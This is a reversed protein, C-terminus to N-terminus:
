VIKVNQTRATTVARKEASEKERLAAIRARKARIRKEKNKQIRDDDRPPKIEAAELARPWPGLFAKIAVVERESFDSRCPYRDLGESKLSKFKEQLLILCEERNYRKDAM